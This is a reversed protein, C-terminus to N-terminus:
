AEELKKRVVMPLIGGNKYYRIDADADFRVMAKFHKEGSDDRAVVDVVDHIGPNESLNIDYTELGTLGLSEATDGELFQLPLVGMMVLNSRHIREFSEALVAKVGLLNSGKAAWDRSSGMGYDKGAIVLTDVNDEKYHMAADYIPMIEGNYKTYGGIKGDALQNQIRINAFTGRMMVEHNGRRSGYSNFDVYDVGHNDLYKAAPSNKAINGAPSIHDTTVSDGFKALPKLNKLPKIALDDGLNDFYPPNQIYTSSENWHYIKSEETPIQNWKESDTFVHEYEQEFLERTVYKNVYEAVEDNTPMIDKLYVPANNQDFGLPETTLDINTNGALAYAVVLPPSALFNAKVLPNVRGEFNRNGSLVASALLDTETIAEAVEPRLSGSNGICTTCGYGVINFGLTDLYTQLGSNRLYGTVVKSGPALSTKVTPAVRLGREVANKALLGASMLVYPNSTNTCSTIAAIAVHGTQIEIDQDDFHVTAKKNIEDATLGFGQVGAERVLSEQFTQKAQTLDILDQPRKPGSISPSITSLDIEVVKTYEAQHEPDYFLNNHKVYEKTLAIHDEKRNTLRMYNLTEDDIPFYGCTAGYEPAMNAITAREALSLNSLGDGFYEVFKGVVKEQRLVQTVKLALDTATAIKPLKGTLRVGIVEPVPFFSAEGLMAAEAEIGGVGWGLVGIGNIMTTHSDTGFMSDPYLMGNKEIVVDSLFEINVQHIIGTAPPVARYNDFSKEAWKLFEYRENNRKFELNINDELATDCGFFDVQVSHDIVLDVPIEPNILEADGGNAVIADRMSALDVVVPVGTFDQLIVRSPKFPVEGSTKKPNYTALNEIHNKTVDVGDYKRLLSELLIRITYPIKKIDGGYHSVAEELNFYSYEGDKFSFKSLFETM